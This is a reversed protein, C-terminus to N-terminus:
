ICETEDGFSRATLGVRGAEVPAAIAAAPAVALATVAMAVTLTRFVRKTRRAARRRILEVIAGLM